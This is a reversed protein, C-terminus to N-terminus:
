HPNHSQYTGPCYIKTICLTSLSFRFQTFLRYYLRCFFFFFPITHFWSKKKRRRSSMCVGVCAFSLPCKESRGALVNVCAGFIWVPWHRTRLSHLSCTCMDSDLRMAKRVHWCSILVSMPVPYFAVSTLVSTQSYARVSAPSSAHTCYSLVYVYDARINVYISNVRVHFCARASTNVSSCVRVCM